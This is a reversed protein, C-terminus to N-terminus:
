STQNMVLNLCNEQHTTIFLSMVAHGISTVRWRRSHPIKAILKHVHLLKLLRSVRSSQRRLLDPDKTHPFLELRIDRNRFGM